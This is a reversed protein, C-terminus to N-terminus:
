VCMFASFSVTCSHVFVAISFVLAGFQYPYVLCLRIMTQMCVLAGFCVLCVLILSVCLLSVLRGGCCVCCTYVHLTYIFRFKTQDNPTSPMQKASHLTHESIHTPAHTPCTIQELSTWLSNCVAALVCVCSNAWAIGHAFALRTPSLTAHKPAYYTSISTGSPVFRRDPTTSRESNGKRALWAGLM